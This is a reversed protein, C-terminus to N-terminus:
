TARMWNLRCIGTTICEAGKAMIKWVSASTNLIQNTCIWCIKIIKSPQAVPTKKTIITLLASCREHDGSKLMEIALKRINDTYNEEIPHDVFETLEDFVGVYDSFHAGIINKTVNELMGDTGVEDDAADYTEEPEDDGRDGSNADYVLAMKKGDDDDDLHKLMVMYFTKGENTYQKFYNQSKTASICWRTARGYYCSAEVSDPRIM